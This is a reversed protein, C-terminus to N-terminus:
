YVKARNDEIEKAEKLAETVDNNPNQLKQMRKQTEKLAADKYSALAPAETKQTLKIVYIGKQGEVPQSIEDKDLAFAAGVVKPEKGAAPILPSEMNVASANQIRVSFQSAVENLDKTNIQSMITKAKKEKEL